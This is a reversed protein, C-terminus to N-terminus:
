SKAPRRWTSVKCGVSPPVVSLAVGIGVFVLLRQSPSCQQAELGGLHESGVARVKCRKLQKGIAQCPLNCRVHPLRILQNSIPIMDHRKLPQLLSFPPIQVHSSGLVIYLAGPWDLSM